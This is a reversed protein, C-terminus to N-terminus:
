DTRGLHLIVFIAFAILLWKSLSSKEKQNTAVDVVTNTDMAQADSEDPTTEETTNDAGSYGPYIDRLAYVTATNMPNNVM